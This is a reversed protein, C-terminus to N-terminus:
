RAGRPLGARSSIWDDLDDRHYYCSKGVVHHLPGRKACAWQALASVSVGIYVAAEVRTFLKPDVPRNLRLKRKRNRVLHSM